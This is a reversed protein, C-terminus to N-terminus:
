RLEKWLGLKACFGINKLAFQGNNLKVQFIKRCQFKFMQTYLFLDHVFHVVVFFWAM